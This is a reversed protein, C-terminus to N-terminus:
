ASARTTTEGIHPRALGHRELEHEWEHQRREHHLALGVFAIGLGIFLALLLVVVCLMLTTDMESFKLWIPQGTALDRESFFQYRTGIGLAALGLGILAGATIIAGTLARM